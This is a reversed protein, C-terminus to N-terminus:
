VPSLSFYAGGWGLDTQVTCVYFHKIPKFSICLCPAHFMGNGLSANGVSVNTLQRHPIESQPGRFSTREDPIHIAGLHLCAWVTSCLRLLLPLALKPAWPPSSSETSLPQTLLQFAACHLRCFPNLLLNLNNNIVIRPLLYRGLGSCSLIM